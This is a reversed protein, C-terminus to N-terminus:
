DGGHYGRSTLRILTWLDADSIYEGVVNTLRSTVALLQRRSLPHCHRSKIISRCRRVLIMRIAERQKDDLNRM